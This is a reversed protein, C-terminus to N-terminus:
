ARRMRKKPEQYDWETEPDVAFRRDDQAAHAALIGPMTTRPDRPRGRKWGPPREQQAFRLVASRSLMYHGGVQLAGLQERAILQRIRRESLKLLKAATAVDIWRQNGVVRPRYARDCDRCLRISGHHIPTGCGKCLYTYKRPVTRPPMPKGKPWGRRKPTEQESM